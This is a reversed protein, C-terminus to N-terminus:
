SEVSESLLGKTALWRHVVPKLGQRWSRPQVGFNERLRRMELVASNDTPTELEELTLERGTDALVMDRVKNAFVLESCVDSSGFHMVGWNEAGYIIQQTIAYVARVVDSVSVPTGRWQDSVVTARNAEFDALLRALLSGGETSLVWSSRLILSHPVAQLLAQEARYFVRSLDTEAKPEDHEGHSVRGEGHFVRYSSLHVVPVESGALCHALCEAGSALLEPKVAAGEGWGTTNLILQPKVAALYDSVQARDVWDLDAPHDSVFRFTTSEFKQRLGTGLPSGTDTLLITIAM